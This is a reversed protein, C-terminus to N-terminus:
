GSLVSMPCESYRILLIMYGVITLQKHSPILTATGLKNVFPNM